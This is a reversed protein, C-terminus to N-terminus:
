FLTLIYTDLIVILLLSGIKLPLSPYIRWPVHLVVKPRCYYSYTHHEPDSRYRPAYRLIRDPVRDALRPPQPRNTNDRTLFTFLTTAEYEEDRELYQVYLSRRPRTSKRDGDIDPVDIVADRDEEARCDLTLVVRSGQVLPLDLLFFTVEQSRYGYLKVIDTYSATPVEAKTCYKAIYDLAVRVSTCPTIDMNARWAMIAVPSYHNMTTDNSKACFMPYRLNRRTSLEATDLIDRPFHFQCYKSNDEPNQGKRRRLCGPDSSAHIPYRWKGYARSGADSRPKDGDPTTGLLARLRESETRKPPRQQFHETALHPNERLFKRAIKTRQTPDAINWADYDDSNRLLSPWHLDAASATIFLSPAGLARVYAELQLRQNGHNM